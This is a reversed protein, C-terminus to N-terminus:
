MKNLQDFGVSAQIANFINIKDDETSCESRKVNVKSLMNNIAVGSGKEIIDNIFM